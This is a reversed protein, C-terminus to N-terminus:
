KKSRKAQGKGRAVMACWATQQHGATMIEMTSTKKLNDNIKVNTIGTGVNSTHLNSGCSYLSSNNRQPANGQWEPVHCQSRAVRTDSFLRDNLPFPKLCSWKFHHWLNVVIDKQGYPVMMQPLYKSGKCPGLPKWGNQKGAKCEIAQNLQDAPRWASGTRSGSMARWGFSAAYRGSGRTSDSGIGGLSYKAPSPHAM